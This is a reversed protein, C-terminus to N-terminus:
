KRPADSECVDVLKQCGSDLRQVHMRTGSLAYVNEVCAIDVNEVGFGHKEEWM